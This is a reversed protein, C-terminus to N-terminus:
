PHYTTSFLLKIGLIEMFGELFLLFFEVDCKFVISKHVGHLRVM